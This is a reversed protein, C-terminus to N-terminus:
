FAYGDVTAAAATFDAVVGTSDVGAMSDAAASVVMTFVVASVADM